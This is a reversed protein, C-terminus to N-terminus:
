MARVGEYGVLDCARERRDGGCGTRAFTKNRQPLVCGGSVRRASFVFEGISITYIEWESSGFRRMTPKPSRGNMVIRGRRINSICLTRHMVGRDFHLRQM